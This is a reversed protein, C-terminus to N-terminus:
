SVEGLTKDQRGDFSIARIRETRCKEMEATRKFHRARELTGYGLIRQSDLGDTNGKSSEECDAQYSNLLLTATGTGVVEGQMRDLVEATRKLQNFKPARIPKPLKKVPSVFSPDQDSNSTMGLIVIVFKSVKLIKCLLLLVFLLLM